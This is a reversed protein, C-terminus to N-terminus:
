CRGCHMKRCHLRRCRSEGHKDKLMFDFRIGSRVFVKKVGPIARLKRLLTLYDSEDADLNKCPTPALCKRNPNAM